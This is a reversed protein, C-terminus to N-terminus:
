LSARDDALIRRVTTVTVGIQHAVSAFIRERALWSESSDGDEGSCPVTALLHGVRTSGPRKRTSPGIGLYKRPRPVLFSLLYMQFVLAVAARHGGILGVVSLGTVHDSFRGLAHWPFHGVERGGGPDPRLRGCATLSGSQPRSANRRYRREGRPAVHHRPPGPADAASRSSASLSPARLRLSRRLRVPVLARAASRQHAPSPSFVATAAVVLLALALGPWTSAIM